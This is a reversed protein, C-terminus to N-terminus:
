KRGTLQLTIDKDTLGTSTFTVVAGSFAAILSTATVGTAENYTALASTITGFKRSTYTEGTSVELYVVERTPDNVEIYDNVSAATM